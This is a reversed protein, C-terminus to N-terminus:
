SINGKGIDGGDSRISNISQETLCRDYFTVEAELRQVQYNVKLHFSRLVQEM